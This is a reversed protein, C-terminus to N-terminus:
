NGFLEKFFSQMEKWSRFDAEANFAAGKSNDIGAEPNTFAHVAKSYKVLQWDVNGSRMENEFAKVQDEPVFPDDAGHLVLVKAHINKADDPTPTDLGGHFSVVGKVDAGSRALELVTTGGFCYGIAAINGIDVMAQRRLEDLAARIRERLLARDNKYIAATAAAEKPNAPRVGKGYIDVALAVYGLRALQDARNKSFAGPGMWDHVVLIGPKRAPGQTSYALHGQLVTDGQRYEIDRTIVEAGATASLCAILLVLCRRFSSLTMTM